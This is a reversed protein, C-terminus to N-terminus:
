FQIKSFYFLHSLCRCDSSGFGKIASEAKQSLEKAILCEIKHKIPILILKQVCANPSELLYDVHWHKNKNEPPSIHRKIRNLLTSSGKQGMASGVYLYYGKFFQVFGLSGIKIQTDKSIYIVM